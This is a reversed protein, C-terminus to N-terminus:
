DYKGPPAMYHITGQILGARAADRDTWCVSLCVSWVTRWSMPLFLGCRANVATSAIRSLLRLATVLYICVRIPGDASHRCRPCHPVRSIPAACCCSSVEPASHRNAAHRAVPSSPVTRRPQRHDAHGGGCRGCVEVLRSSSRRRPPGCSWSVATVNGNHDSATRSGPAGPSDGSPARSGGTTTTSECVGEDDDDSKCSSAARGFLRKVFSVLAGGLM